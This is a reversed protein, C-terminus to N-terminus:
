LRVRSRLHIIRNNILGIRNAIDSAVRELETDGGSALCPDSQDSPPLLTSDLKKELEDLHSTTMNLLKHMETLLCFLGPRADVDEVSRCQVPAAYSAVPGPYAAQLASRGSAPPREPDVSGMSHRYHQDHM